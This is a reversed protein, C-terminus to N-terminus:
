CADPANDFITVSQLKRPRPLGTVHNWCNGGLVFGVVSCRNRGLGLMEAIDGPTFKAADLAVIARVLTENLLVKKTQPTKEKKPKPPGVTAKQGDGRCPRPPRPVRRPSWGTVHRWTRGRLVQGVAHVVGPDLELERVIKTAGAGTGDHIAKVERVIAATLVTNPSGGCVPPKGWFLNDVRNNTLDGDRHRGVM